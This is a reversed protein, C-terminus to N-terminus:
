NRQSTTTYYRRARYRKTNPWGKKTEWTIWTIKGARKQEEVQRITEEMFYITFTYYLFALNGIVIGFSSVVIVNVIEGLSMKYRRRIEVVKAWEM